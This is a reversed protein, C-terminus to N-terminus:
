GEVEEAPIITPEAEICVIEIMEVANRRVVYAENINENYWPSKKLDGIEIMLKDADILRGHGKPLVVGEHIYRMLSDRAWIPNKWDRSEIDKYVEDPIEIVIQM